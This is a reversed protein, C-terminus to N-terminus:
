INLQLRAAETMMDPTWPPDWVLQIDCATVGHVFRVAHEVMGPMQEAIPCAPTTLTMLVAVAGEETVTLDYILGLDYINVPIEPDYVSRLADVVLQELKERSLKEPRSAEATTAEGSRDGNGSQEGRGGTGQETERLPKPDIPESM